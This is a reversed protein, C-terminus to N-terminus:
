HEIQYLLDLSQSEGSEAKLELKDTLRYRLAVHNEPTFLNQVYSILLRPSLYKGVVLSSDLYDDGGEFTFVDIGFLGQLRSTIWASNAIGLATATNMVRNADGSNLENVPKGTVLVALAETPPLPPESFIESRIDRAYGHVEIGVRYGAAEREAVINLAPNEPPGRFLLYGQTIQLSQGYASYVGDMLRLTGFAQAPEGRQQRLRLDGTPRATLGFGEFHVEDGLLLRLDARWDLGSRQDTDEETGLIEEDPSVRTAGAALEKIM